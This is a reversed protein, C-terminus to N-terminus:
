FAYHWGGADLTSCTKGTCPNVTYYYGLVNLRNDRLHYEGQQPSKKHSSKCACGCASKSSKYSKSSHKSM